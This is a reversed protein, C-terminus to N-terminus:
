IHTYRRNEKFNQISVLSEVRDGSSLYRTFDFLLDSGSSSLDFNIDRGSSIDIINNNNQTNSNAYATQVEMGFNMVYFNFFLVFCLIRCLNKIM